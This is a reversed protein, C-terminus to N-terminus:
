ASTNARVRITATDNPFASTTVAVTRKIWVGFAEGPALDGITLGNDYDEAYDFVPGTPATSEDGVTEITNAVGEDALAIMIETATAETNSSIWVKTAYATDTASTNKVFFARYETDGAAAEASGIDDLLNSGCQSSSIIGGLSLLPDSNSGGGSLYLKIDTAAIAM